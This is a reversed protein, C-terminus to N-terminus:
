RCASFVKGQPLKIGSLTVQTNIDAQQVRVVQV